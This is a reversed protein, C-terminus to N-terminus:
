YEPPAGAESTGILIVGQLGQDEPRQHDHFGCTGRRTLADTLGSQKASLVPLANIPPCDTHVPHPKSRIEHTQSSNNVFRVQQGM